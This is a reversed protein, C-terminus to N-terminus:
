RRNYERAFTDDFWDLCGMNASVNRLTWALDPKEAAYIGLSLFLMQKEYEDIVLKFYFWTQGDPEEGLHTLIAGISTQWGPRQEALHRLSEIILGRDVADLCYWHVPVNAIIEEIDVIEQLLDTM